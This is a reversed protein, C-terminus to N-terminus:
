ENKPAGLDNQVPNEKKKKKKKKVAVIIIIVTALIAILALLVLLAIIVTTIIATTDIYSVTLEKSRVKGTELDLINWTVRKDNDASVLGNTEYVKEPVEVAFSDNIAVGVLTTILQSSQSNEEFISNSTLTIKITKKFYGSKEIETTIGSLSFIEEAIEETATGEISIGYADAGNIETQIKHINFDPFNEYASDMKEYFEDVSGFSMNILSEQLAINLKM